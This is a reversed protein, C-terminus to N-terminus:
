LCNTFHLLIVIEELTKTALSRSGPKSRPNTFRFFTRNQQTKIDAIQIVFGTCNMWEKDKNKFSSVSFWHLPTFASKFVFM